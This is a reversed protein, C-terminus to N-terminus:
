EEATREAISNIRSEVKERASQEIEIAGGNKGTIEKRDKYKGQMEFFLKIARTDGDIANAILSKWVGATQSNVFKDIKENLVENFKEDDLWTYITKRAVGAKDAIETISTVKPNVFLDIANIQKKTLDSYTVKQTM